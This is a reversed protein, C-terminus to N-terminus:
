GLRWLAVLTVALLTQIALGAAGVVASHAFFQLYVAVVFWVIAVAMTVPSREGARWHVILFIGSTIPALWTLFPFFLLM